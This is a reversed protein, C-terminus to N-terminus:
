AGAGPGAPHPAVRTAPHLESAYDGPALEVPLAAARGGGPTTAVGQQSALQLIAAHFKDMM